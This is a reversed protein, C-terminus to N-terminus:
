GNSSYFAALIIEWDPHLRNVGGDCIFLRDLELGAPMTNLLRQAENYKAKNATAQEIYSKFLERQTGWESLFRKYQSEEETGAKILKRELYPIFSFEIGHKLARLDDASFRANATKFAQELEKLGCKALAFDRSNGREIVKEHNCIAKNM